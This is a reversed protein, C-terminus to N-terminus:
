ARASQGDLVELLHPRVGLAHCRERIRDLKWRSRDVPADAHRRSARLLLNKPTHESAVFELTDVAYGCAVLTEVRLADTLVAAYDRGLLNHQALAHVPVTDKHLQTSLERQCCPACLIARAGTEIAFALADDTATDCAHLSVVLDPTPKRSADAITGRRFRVHDWGLTAARDNARDVVDGRVDIGEVLADIGALRLAEAIVFTLYGNGCGLDVIRRPAIRGEQEGANDEWRAWIPRCLEVLHNVQKYKKAHKTSITGDANMLGIVRLLPASDDPRLARDKGGMMKRARDEDLAVLKARGHRADIRVKTRDDVVLTVKVRGQTAAADAAALLADVDAAAPTGEPGVLETPRPDDGPRAFVARQWGKAAHRRLAKHLRHQHPALSSVRQWYCLSARRAM